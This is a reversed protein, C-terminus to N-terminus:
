GPSRLGRVILTLALSIEWAFIPVAALPQPRLLGFMVGINVAGILAAGGLGLMPIARPVLRDRLLLWALVVTNIPSILGPGIFFTWDHVLRLGDGVAQDLGPSAGTAPQAVVPLLVVVGTLIASAELTRLAVYASALGPGYGRVLPYLCVATGVVAAALVVELLGGVLVSTRGALPTSSDLNGGGYLIVAGVSTVHTILFLLGALRATARPTTM